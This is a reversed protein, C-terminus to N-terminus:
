GKRGEKERKMKLAEDVRASMAVTTGRAPFTKMWLVLVDGAFRQNLRYARKLYPAAGYMNTVGSERLSDLFFFYEEFQEQESKM